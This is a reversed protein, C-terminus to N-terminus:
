GGENRLTVWMWSSCSCEKDAKIQMEDRSDQICVMSISITALSPSYQCNPKFLIDSLVGLQSKIEAGFTTEVRREELLHGSNFSKFARHNQNLKTAAGIASEGAQRAAIKQILQHWNGPLARSWCCDVELYWSAVNQVFLSLIPPCVQYSEIWIQLSLLSGFSLFILISIMASTGLQVATSWLPQKAM